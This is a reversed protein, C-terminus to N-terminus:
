ASEERLFPLIATKVQRHVDEVSGSADIVAFRSPYSRALHLYAEGVKRHFAVDEQEMRDPDGKTRALGAEADLHLLIVLDPLTEDTAWVNLRMVDEEGLGRAVGQYALSSDLYRDCLVVSGTELAPRIVEAVHQARSAAYLLAETKPDMEKLDPDLVVHRVREAIRTGGPERTVVVERGQAELAEFLLKVQTSKGCGEVGEFAFLLGPRAGGTIPRTGRTGFGTGLQLGRIRGRVKGIVKRPKMERIAVLGSVILLLGGAWFVIRVGALDLVYKGVHVTHNGIAGAIIPWGGLAVFLSLMIGTYLTAFTRGRLRDEVREQLLTFITVWAVGAGFGSFLTAAIAPPMSTMSAVIIVSVGSLMLGLPFIRERAVKRAIAGATIMGGVLGFGVAVILAGWAAQSAVESGGVVRRAFIPGLGIVAGGGTFAIWAGVVLTRVTRDSRVFRLGERLDQWAHGASFETRARKAKMLHAPFTAVMGASFLFTAGDVFFALSTPKDLLYSFADIRGLLGALAGLAALIGGALPFTGYTTILSLQNATMLESREVLNPLTAEKAPSWMLTLLEMLTSVLFLAWLRDIFPISMILFARSVDATIMLRRRDFRDALVGAFPGFFLGPVVRFLLVGGVAFEPRGSLQQVFGVLAFVGLWDGLSSVTTIAWLRRFYRRKLLSLLSSPKESPPILEHQTSRPEAIASIRGQGGASARVRGAM